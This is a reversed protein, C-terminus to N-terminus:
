ATTINITLAGYPEGQKLRILDKTALVLCHYFAAAAVHRTSAAQPVIHDFILSTMDPLTQYQMKAYELFNFSNRELTILNIDSQQSELIPSNDGPVDFVFDEGGLRSSHGIPTPSLGVGSLVSGMRSPILSSGIRSLCKGSGRMEVDAGDVSIRGGYQGSLGVAAGGVSSSAGAHDWPFLFSRQSADPLDQMGLGFGSYSGLVSPPRSVRRGQGPEESSHLRGTERQMTSEDGMEIDMNVDMGIDFRNDWVDPEPIDGNIEEQARTAKVKRRKAPPQGPWTDIHLNGSRAEVQVRFNEQWFDVLEQAQIGRPVGWLMGEVMKRIDNESKKQVIERRLADQGELYQIRATKLEEDTLEIRSDLLLRTRKPKKVKGSIEADIDDIPPQEDQSLFLQSFNTPLLASRPTINSDPLSSPPLNEKDSDFRRQKHKRPQLSKQVPNFPAGSDL